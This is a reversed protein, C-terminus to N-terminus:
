CKVAGLKCRFKAGSIVQRPLTLCTNELKRGGPGGAFSIGLNGFLNMLGSVQLFVYLTAPGM